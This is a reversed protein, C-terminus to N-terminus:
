FDNTLLDSYLNPNYEGKEILHKFGNMVIPIDEKYTMGLWIDNTPLMKAFVKREFAILM